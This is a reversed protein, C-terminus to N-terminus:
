GRAATPGCDATKVRRPRVPVDASKPPQYRSDNIVFVHSMVNGSGAFVSNLILLPHLQGAIIEIPLGSHGPFLQPAPDKLDAASHAVECVVKQIALQHYSNVDLFGTYLLM